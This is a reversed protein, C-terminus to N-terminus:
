NEVRADVVAQKKVSHNQKNLLDKWIGNVAQSSHTVPIQPVDLAPL